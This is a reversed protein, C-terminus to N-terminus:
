AFDVVKLIIIIRSMGVGNFIILIDL